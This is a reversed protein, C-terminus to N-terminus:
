KFRGTDFDAIAQRIEEQTNMVFPGYGAIPEDIPEGNMVLLTTDKIATLTITKGKQKFFALEVDNMTASNNIKVSGKLVFLITTYNEQIDLEVTKGTLLRLDWLNIPTYTNAPGKDGQYEGAIVRM